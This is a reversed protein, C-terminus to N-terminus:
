SRTQNQTFPSLRLILPQAVDSRLARCARVSKEGEVKRQIKALLFFERDKFFECKQAFSRRKSHDKDTGLSGLNQFIEVFHFLM